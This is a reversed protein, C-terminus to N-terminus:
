KAYGKPHTQHWSWASAIIDQLAPFQPQWDLLDRARDSSAVLRSPDGDRREAVRSKIKEGTVQRSVEVVEKVSYGQGNGLNFATTEGGTRLYELAKVHAQALDSVHVYDRVCTGDPTDYNDGFMLIEDRQGLAVQLVLPILHTEPTHDEGIDPAGGAANFYRLAVSKLGHARDYAQLMTEIFLKSSGYPNTPHKPHDETIPFSEPEGYVAATSSFIFHEVGAARMAELLHWTKVCNNEFYLEPSAVSEPVSTSGAFHLVATVDYDTFIEHLVASDAFDGRLFVADPNLAEPHGQSLDDLVIVQEGKDQLWRVVNSGVYGAGGTVLVAM